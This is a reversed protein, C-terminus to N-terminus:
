ERREREAIKVRQGLAQCIHAMITGRTKEEGVRRCTNCLVEGASRFWTDCDVCQHREVNVQPDPPGRKAETTPPPSSGRVRYPGRLKLAM